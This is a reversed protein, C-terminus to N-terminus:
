EAHGEGGRAARALAYDPGSTIRGLYSAHAPSGEPWTKLFRALFATQDYAVPLAHIHIGRHSHGYLTRLPCPQTSIRTIVGFTSNAFNPMGAAGNNAIALNGAPTELRRLAALCTHTSAFIDIGTPEKLSKLGERCIHDDLADQAFRWGALSWADGHVIGVRAEGVAAVLHMPLRALRDVTHSQALAVVRLEALIDNSRSVVDDGVSEPYACGCGAGIDGARAIETEINGRLALYRSVRQEVQSFWATEADFWHFDGNFVISVPGGEAEAMREIEDLAALNGYLGGAIYITEVEIEAPRRFVDPSYRYDFPCMRGAAGPAPMPTAHVNM